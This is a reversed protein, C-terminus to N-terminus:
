VPGFVGGFMLELITGAAVVAITVQVLILGVVGDTYPNILL